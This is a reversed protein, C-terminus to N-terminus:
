ISRFCILRIMPEALRFASLGALHFPPAPEHDNMDRINIEYSTKGAYYRM